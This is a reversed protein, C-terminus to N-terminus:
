RGEATLSAEKAAPIQCDVNHIQGGGGRGRTQMGPRAAASLDRAAEMLRRTRIEVVERGRCAGPRIVTPSLVLERVKRKRSTHVSPFRGVASGKVLSFVQFRLITICLGM